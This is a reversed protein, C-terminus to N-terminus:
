QGVIQGFTQLDWLTLEFGCISPCAVCHGFSLSCVAILLVGCLFGLMLVAKDHVFCRSHTLSLLISILSM